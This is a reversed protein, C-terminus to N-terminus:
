NVSRMKFLILGGFTFYSAVAILMVEYGFGPNRANVSDIVPGILRALAAGGATAMNALAMYRAEEGKNLLDTALAWNSTSFIVMAIGLVLAAALLVIFNGPFVILLLIGAAGTLSALASLVRRSFHDCLKGAPYAGLLMVAVAIGLFEFTVRAPNDVGLVDSFYYLAFQQVTTLGMFVLTRSALFSLLQSRRSFDLHFAHSISGLIAGSGRSHHEPSEKVWLLTLGLAILLFAAAVALALWLWIAPGGFEYRGIFLSAIGVMAVGGGVELMNKVGSARGRQQPPVMDPLFAQYPGQATNGGFQMLLYSVFLLAYTGVLGIGALSIILAAAGAVIFPLRRGSLLSSRDSIASIVPQYFTAVLLGTFTMLGLYTNKQSESIFDLIRVPLIITHIGQSLAALAFFLINIKVFDFRSFPQREPM